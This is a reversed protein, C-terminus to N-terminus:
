KQAAAFAKRRESVASEMEASWWVKPHRKIRGFPISFKAAMTEWPTFLAAASFLSLSPYEEASSCHFDFYSIFGDWHAKQFNFSPPRENPRYAPSLPVSLLIPLHDSGLNQLM